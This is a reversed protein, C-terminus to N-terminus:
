APLNVVPLPFDIYTILLSVLAIKPDLSLNEINIIAKLADNERKKRLHSVRDILTSTSSIQGAEDEYRKLREELLNMNNASCDNRIKQNM